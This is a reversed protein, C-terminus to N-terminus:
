ARGHEEEVLVATGNLCLLRASFGKNRIEAYDYGADSPWCAVFRLPVFGTNAVRHATRPPIHHLSGTTMEETWTKRQENMLILAGQGRITSYFETRDARAHFHGHTMFYEIGVQGPEVITTGWFLGGETQEPVPAWCEVSYILRESALEHAARQDLFLARLDGLTKHSHGIERGDLAGTAWNVRPMVSALSSLVPESHLLLIMITFSNLNFSCILAFAPIIADCFAFVACWM